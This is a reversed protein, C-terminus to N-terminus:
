EVMGGGEGCSDMGAHNEDNFKTVRLGNRRPHTGYPLRHSDQERNCRFVKPRTQAFFLSSVFPM